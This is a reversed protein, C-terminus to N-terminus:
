NYENIRDIILTDNHFACSHHTATDKTANMLLRLLSILADGVTPLSVTATCCKQLLLM